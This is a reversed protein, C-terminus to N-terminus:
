TEDSGLAGLIARAVQSPTRGDVDVVITAVAEYLASRQSSLEDLRERLAASGELLPRSDVEEDTRSLRETLTDLRARLWAVTCASLERRAEPVTVVGGGTALVVPPGRLVERLAGLEHARFGDEGVTEFLEPISARASQEVLEDLDVARRGMQAALLPAVTSKGTGPLGVLVLPAGTPSESHNM